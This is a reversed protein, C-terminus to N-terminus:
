TRCDEHRVGKELVHVQYMDSRNRRDMKLFSYILHGIISFADEVPGYEGDFTPINLSIDTMGDVKGGDFGTIGITFGGNKHAFDLGEIINESNGSVSFAIVVDGANMSGELQRAFIKNYGEDNALATMLAVNDTLSIAKFHPSGSVRTGVNIDNAYHSATAASGGNGMFFISNGKEGATEIAAIISSIVAMDIGALLGSLYGIYRKGFDSKSESKNYHEQLGTM